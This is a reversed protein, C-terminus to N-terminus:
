TLFVQSRISQRREAPTKPTKEGVRSKPKAKAKVKAKAKPAPTAGESEANAIDVLAKITPRNASADHSPLSPASTDAGGLISALGEQTTAVRTEATAAVTTTEKQMSKGGSTCWFRVSEADDPCDSDPVPSLRSIITEIKMRLRYASAHNCFVALWVNILCIVKTLQDCNQIECTYSIDIHIYLEGKNM